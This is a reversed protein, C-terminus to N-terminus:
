AQDEDDADAYAEFSESQRARERESLELYAELDDETEIEAGQYILAGGCLACVFATGMPFVDQEDIKSQLYILRGNDLRQVPTVRRVYEQYDLESSGCQLCRFTKMIKGKMRYASQLKHASHMARKVPVMTWRNGMISQDSFSFVDPPVGSSLIKWRDTGEATYTRKEPTMEAKWVCIPKAVVPHIVM